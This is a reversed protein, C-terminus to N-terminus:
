PDIRLLPAIRRLVSPGIGPVDDLAEMTRFRGHEARWDVIRKALAPGIGPLAELEEATASNLGLRPAGGAAPDRAGTRTAAGAPGAGAAGATAPRRSPPGPPLAVHPSIAELVAPGVGPVEDLDGMTRFRGNAVRHEAIRRALSPGVRPLRDLEPASARNPDIREGPALPTEALRREATEREVEARLASLGGDTTTDARAAWEAPPGATGMVRVGAGAVILVATVGLALREQPTIHLM